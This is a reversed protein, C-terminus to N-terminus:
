ASIITMLGEGFGMVAVEFDSRGNKSLQYISELKPFIQPVVNISRLQLANLNSVDYISTNLLNLLISCGDLIPGEITKLTIAEKVKETAVDNIAAGLVCAAKLELVCVARIATSSGDDFLGVLCPRQKSYLEIPEVSEVLVEHQTLANVIKAFSSASPLTFRQKVATDPVIKEANSSEETSNIKIIPIVANVLDQQEFPKHIIFLAGASRAVALPDEATETTIVGIKIDLMERQIKNILEMGGMVPMHWDTLVLDPKWERIIDLAFEGNDTTKIESKIDLKQLGRKIILQMARSDDVVLFRM